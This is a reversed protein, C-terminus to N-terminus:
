LTILTLKNITKSHYKSIFDHSMVLTALNLITSNLLNGNTSNNYTSMLNWLGAGHIKHIGTRFTHQYPTFTDFGDFLM